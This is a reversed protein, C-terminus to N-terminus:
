ASALVDSSGPASFGCAPIQAPATPYSATRGCHSQARLLFCDKDLFNHFGLPLYPKRDFPASFWVASFWRAGAFFRRSLGIFLCSEPVFLNATSLCFVFLRFVVQALSFREQYHVIM